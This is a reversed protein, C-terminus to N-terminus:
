SRKPQSAALGKGIPTDLFQGNVCDSKAHSEKVIRQAAEVPVVLCSQASSPLLQLSSTRHRSM